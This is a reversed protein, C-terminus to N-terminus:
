ELNGLDAKFRLGISAETMYGGVDARVLSLGVESLNKDSVTPM